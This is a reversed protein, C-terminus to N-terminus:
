KHVVADGHSALSSEYGATDTRRALRLDLEDLQMPACLWHGQGHRCGLSLLNAAQLEAEVGEAVPRLELHQALQVITSVIHQTTEDHLHQTFSQDIKLLDFPYHRLQALSSYGTGFDDLALQVGLNRLRALVKKAHEPDEVLASETIELTLLEPAFDSDNIVAEIRAPLQPDRLQRTSLNVAVGIRTGESANYRSVQEVALTLLHRGLDEILGNQEAFPVFAAPTLLTGTPQRWRALAELRDVHRTELDYIPQYHMVFEGNGIAARITTERDFQALAAAHLTPTYVHTRNKGGRKAEYMALDANRLLEDVDAKSGGLAVGVSATLTVERGAVRMPERMTEVVHEAIKAAASEDAIDEVLLAFEDGGLRAITDSSRLNEQFRQSVTRLVEDGAWHGLTDNITKFNDVDVFMTAVRKSTRRLRAIAHSVRDRFLTQNPLGTLPDHLAQHQLQQELEHHATIDRFSWVRGVIEDGLRQPLSDREFVRGDKFKLVDHSSVEPTAYLENLKEIFAEPDLLDTVVMSLARANDGAALVDAPLRWMEAFRGNWSTIHGHLDVVLIADATSELTATLLSNSARLEDEAAIRETIDLGTVIVGGVTPDDLLNTLTFAMPVASGDFRSCRAEVTRTASVTHDGVVEHLVAAVKDRDAEAVLATLPKGEVWEQDHGLLRTLGGTSAVVLGYADLLLTVTTAYQVLARFRATEDGAIEWRRRDTIDRICLVIGDPSPAGRVEALRWEDHARVRVEILSGTAKQQVSSVAQAVLLLDDPHVLEIANMGVAQTIPVGFFREAALNGWRVEGEPSIVVLPDPLALAVAFARPDSANAPVEEERM